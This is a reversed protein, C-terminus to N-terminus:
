ASSPMRSQRKDRPSPSTYLLCGLCGTSQCSETKEAVLYGPSQRSETREGGCTGQPSAPSVPLCTLVHRDLFINQTYIRICHRSEFLPKARAFRSFRPSAYIRALYISTNVQRKQKYFKRIYTKLVQVLVYVNTQTTYLLMYKSTGLM